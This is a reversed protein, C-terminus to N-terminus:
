LTSDGYETKIDCGKQYVEILSKEWAEALGEGEVFLVPINGNM